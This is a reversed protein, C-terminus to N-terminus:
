MTSATAWSNSSSCGPTSSACCPACIMRQRRSAAKCCCTTRAAPTAPPRCASSARSYTGLLYGQVVGGDVLSRKHTAVGESDFPSSGRRKPLSPDEILDIHDAWVQQGLSDQLFSSKRYLAGGSIAHTFSGILGSALPSEFLVPCKRTSLKRAKLRFRV